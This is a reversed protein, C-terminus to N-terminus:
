FDCFVCKLVANQFSGGACYMVCLAVINQQSCSFFLKLAKIPSPQTSTLGPSGFSQRWSRASRWGTCRPCGWRVAGVGTCGSGPQLGRPCILPQTATCVKHSPKEMLARFPEEKSPSSASILSPSSFTCHFHCFPPFFILRLQLGGAPWVTCCVAGHPRVRSQVRRQPSWGSSAPSFGAPVPSARLGALVFSPVQGAGSCVAPVVVSIAFGLLWPLCGSIGGSPYNGARLRDCRTGM